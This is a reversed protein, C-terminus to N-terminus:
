VELWASVVGCLVVSATETRLIRSGLSVSLVNPLGQLKAIEGASFGGESGVIIAIKYSSKLSPLISKITRMNENENAFIVIDFENLRVCMQEFKLTNSANLLQTRGCQKCASVIIKKLREQRGASGEKAMTYQSLFPVIEHAGVECLKQCIFELKDQKPLGQFVTIPLRPNANCPLIELIKLVSKNKEIRLIECLFVDIDDFFCEVTDGSHLRLVRSLHEHEDGILVIEDNYIDSKKIFFRRKEM